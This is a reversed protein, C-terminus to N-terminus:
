LARDTGDVGERVYLIAQNQKGERRLYFYHGKRVAPATVLGIDLLTDLRDHIAKQGPLQELVTAAFANQGEVWQRVEPSDANELWRYPDAVEVGHIKEVTSDTRTPPYKVHKPEAAMLLPTLVAFVPLIRKMTLVRRITRHEDFFLRM